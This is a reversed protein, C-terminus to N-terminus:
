CVNSVTIQSVQQQQEISPKRIPYNLIKKHM